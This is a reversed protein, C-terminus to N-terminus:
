LLAAVTELGMARALNRAEQKQDERLRTVLPGAAWYLNQSEVATLSIRSGSRLHKKALELLMKEVPKWHEEQDATLKLRRKIDAVQSVTLRGDFTDPKPKERKAVPAPARHEVRERRPPQPAAKTAPVETQAVVPPAPTTVMAYPSLLSSDWGAAAPASPRVAPKAALVEPVSEQEVAVDSAPMSYLGTAPDDARDGTDMMAWGAVGIAGTLTALALLLRLKM